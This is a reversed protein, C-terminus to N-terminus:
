SVTLPQGNQEASLGQLFPVATEAWTAADPCNGAGEGWCSRLMDTDIVGPNLPIAALGPPLEEALARTLGEVGWKTCCYPAVEPSTSRGWGSSLNVVIGSGREIMAPLVAAIVLHVGKLNVDVVRSFEGSPVKWLPASRNILAANNVLLDPPGHRKIAARAFSKVHNEHTVDCPMVLHPEGLEAALADIAPRSTGCGSVAWGSAAFGRALAQGLGRTAGTLLLHKM